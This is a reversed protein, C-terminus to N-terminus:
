SQEAKMEAALEALREALEASHLSDAASKALERLREIHKDMRSPVFSLEMLTIVAVFARIIIIIVCVDTVGRHLLRWGADEVLGQFTRRRAGHQGQDHRPM